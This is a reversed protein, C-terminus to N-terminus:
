RSAQPQHDRRRPLRARLQATLERLEIVIDRFIPDDVASEAAVRNVLHTLRSVEESAVPADSTQMRVILAELTRLEPHVGGSDQTIRALLLAIRRLARSEDDKAM